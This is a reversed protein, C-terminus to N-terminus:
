MCKAWLDRFAFPWKAITMFLFYHLWWISSSLSCFFKIATQDPKSVRRMMTWQLLAALLYIEVEPFDTVWVFRKPSYNSCIQLKQKNCKIMEKISALFKGLNRIIFFINAKKLGSFSFSCITKRTTSTSPKHPSHPSHDEQETWNEQWLPPSLLLDFFNFWGQVRKWPSLTHCGLVQLLQHLM